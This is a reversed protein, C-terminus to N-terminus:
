AAQGDGVLLAFRLCSSVHMQRDPSPFSKWSITPVCQCSSGNNRSRSLQKTRMLSLSWRHRRTTCPLRYSVSMRDMLNGISSPFELAMTSEPSYGYHLVVLVPPVVYFRHKRCSPTSQLATSGLDKHLYTLSCYGKGDVIGPLNQARM